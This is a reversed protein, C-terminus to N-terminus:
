EVVITYEQSGMQGNVMTGYCWVDIRFTYTGAKEPVGTIKAIDHDAEDMNLVLGPPLTELDVMFEGVPTVNQTVEIRAEYPVGVKANPLTLPTFKLPGREPEVWKETPTAAPSRPFLTLCATSLIFVLAFSFLSACHIRNM